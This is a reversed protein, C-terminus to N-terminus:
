LEYVLHIWPMSNFGPFLTILNNSKSHAKRSLYYPSDKDPTSRRSLYYPLTRWKYNSMKPGVM